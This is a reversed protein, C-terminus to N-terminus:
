QPKGKVEIRAEFNMNDLKTTYKIVEHPFVTIYKRLILEVFFNQSNYIGGRIDFDM